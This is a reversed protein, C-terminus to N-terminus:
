KPFFHKPIEEMHNYNLQLLTCIKGKDPYIDHMPSLLRLMEANKGKGRLPVTLSSAAFFTFLFSLTDIRNNKIQTGEKSLTAPLAKMLGNKITVVGRTPSM